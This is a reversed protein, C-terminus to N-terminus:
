EEGAPPPPQCLKYLRATAFLLALTVTLLQAHQLHACGLVGVLGWGEQGASGSTSFEAECCPYWALGSQSTQVPLPIVSVGVFSRGFVSPGQAGKWGPM